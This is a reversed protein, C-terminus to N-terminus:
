ANAALPPVPVTATVVEEPQLQVADLPAAQTVIEPPAVPVPDPVTAKLTTALGPVSELAAVRVMAPFDNVTVCAPGDHVKASAGESIVAGGVPVDPEIATVVCDVQVQVAVVVLAHTVTDPEPTPDPM